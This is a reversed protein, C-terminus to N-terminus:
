EHACIAEARSRQEDYVLGDIINFNIGCKSKEDTLWRIQWPEVKLHATTILLWTLELTMHRHWNVKQRVTM